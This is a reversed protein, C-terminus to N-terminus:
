RNVTNPILRNLRQQEEQRAREAELKRIKKRLLRETARREAEQRAEHRDFNDVFAQTMNQSDADCSACTGSGRINERQIEDRLRENAEELRRRVIESKDYLDEMKEQNDEITKRYIKMEKDDIKIENENEYKGYFTESIERERQLLRMYEHPLKDYDAQLKNVMQNYYEIPHVSINFDGKKNVRNAIVREVPTLYDGIVESLDENELVKKKSSRSSSSSNSDGGSGKKYTASAKSLADKYSCNNKKAYQKVHNIWASPM